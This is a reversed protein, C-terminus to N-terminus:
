ENKAARRSNILESHQDEPDTDEALLLENRLQPKEAQLRYYNFFETKNLITFSASCLLLILSALIFFILSSKYMNDSGPLIIMLIAKLVNMTIGSYGNGLMVAGM